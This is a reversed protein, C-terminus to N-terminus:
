AKDLGASRDSFIPAPDIGLESLQAILKENGEKVMREAELQRKVEARQAFKTTSMGICLHMHLTQIARNFLENAEANGTAREYIETALHIAAEDIIDQNRLRGMILESGENYRGGAADLGM